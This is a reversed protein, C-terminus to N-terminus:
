ENVWHAEVVCRDPRWVVYDWHEFVDEGKRIIATQNDKCNEKPSSWNDVAVCSPRFGLKEQAYRCLSNTVELPYRDSVQTHYNGGLAVIYSNPHALKAIQWRKAMGHAKLKNPPPNLREDWLYSLSVDSMDAIKEFFAHLEWTARKDINDTWFPLTKDTMDYTQFGDKPTMGLNLGAERPSFEHLVLVSDHVDLAAETVAELLMIGTLQGHVEGIAIGDPSIKVLEKAAQSFDALPPNTKEALSQTKEAALHDATMKHSSTEGCGNFFVGMALVVLFLLHIQFLKM